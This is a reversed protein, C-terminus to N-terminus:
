LLLVSYSYCRMPKFSIFGIVWLGCSWLEERRCVGVIGFFYAWPRMVFWGWRFSGWLRPSVSWLNFVVGVCCGVCFWRLSRLGALFWSWDGVIIRYVVCVKMLWCQRVMIQPLLPGDLLCSWLWGWRDITFRDSKRSWQHIFFLM